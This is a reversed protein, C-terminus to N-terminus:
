TPLYAEEYFLNEQLRDIRVYGPYRNTGAFYWSNETQATLTFTGNQMWVEAPSVNEPHYALYTHGELPTYVWKFEFQFRLVQEGDGLQMGNIREIGQDYAWRMAESLTDPDKLSWFSVYGDQVEHMVQRLEAENRNFFNVLREQVFPETKAPLIICCLVMLALRGM